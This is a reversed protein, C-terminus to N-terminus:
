RSGVVQRDEENSLSGGQVFKGTERGRIILVGGQVTGGYEINLGLRLFDNCAHKVEGFQRSSIGIEDSIREM